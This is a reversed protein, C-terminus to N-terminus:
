MLGLIIVTQIHTSLPGSFGLTLWGTSCPDFEWFGPKKALARKEGM